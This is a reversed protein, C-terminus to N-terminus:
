DYKSVTDALSGPVFSPVDDKIQKEVSACLTGPQLTSWLDFFTVKLPGIELAAHSVKMLLKGSNLISFLDSKHLHSDDKQLGNFAILNVPYVFPVTAGSIRHRGM